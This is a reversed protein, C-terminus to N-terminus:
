DGLIRPARILFATPSVITIPVDDSMYINVIENRFLAHIPASISITAPEGMNRLLHIQQTYYESNLNSAISFEEKYDLKYIGSKVLECAKIADTLENSTLQLATTYPTNKGGYTLYEELTADFEIKRNGMMEITSEHPHIVVIPLVATKNNSQLAITDGASFSTEEGMTKLYKMLTSLVVIVEGEEEITCDHTIKVITSNDANYVILNDKAVLKVYDSLAENKMVGSTIYKGKLMSRELVTIFEKSNIIFKM